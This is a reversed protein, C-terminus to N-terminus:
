RAAGEQRGQELWASFARLDDVYDIGRPGRRPGRSGAGGVILHVDAPLKKRLAALQRDTEVGGTALSVSVIIAQAQTEQQMRVIENVPTDAGLIHTSAGALSSLLALMQLALDHREGSLTALVAAWSTPADPLAMRLSRIVDGLVETLFHEHRIELEGDAWLRGVSRILSVVRTELFTTPDLEQWDKRLAETLEVRRFERVFSLLSETRPDVRDGRSDAIICDLEAESRHLLDSPRHGRAIAEAIRRLYRVQSKEYRRHGSPLRRAMPRGYRREWVRLTHVSIGTAEAVGGISLLGEGTGAERKTPHTRESKM